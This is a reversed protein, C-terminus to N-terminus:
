LPFTPSFATRREAKGSHSLFPGSMVGKSSLSLLHAEPPRGFVRHPFHTKDSTSSCPSAQDKNRLGLRYMRFFVFFCFCVVPQKHFTQAHINLLANGDASIPFCQLINTARLIQIYLDFVYNNIQYILEMLAM